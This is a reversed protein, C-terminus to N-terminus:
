TIATPVRWTIMAVKVADNVVLCSVMTYAFVAITQSWPLEAVMAVGSIVSVTIFGGINCTEPKRSCLRCVHRDRRVPHGV